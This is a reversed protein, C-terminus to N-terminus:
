RGFGYSIGGSYEFGTMMASPVIEETYLDGDDYFSNNYNINLNIGFNKAFKVDFGFGVQFAYRVLFQDEGTAAPIHNSASILNLGNMFSFYPMFVNKYVYFRGGVHVPYVKFDTYGSDAGSSMEENIFGVRGVALWSNPFYKGYNLYFGSGYKYVTGFQGLNRIYTYSLFVQNNLQKLYDKSGISAPTKTNLSQSYSQTFCLINVVFILILLIIKM